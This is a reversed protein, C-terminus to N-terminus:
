EVRKRRGVLVVTLVVMALFIVFFYWYQRAFDVFGFVKADTVTNARIDYYKDVKGDNKTDLGVLNPSGEVAQTRTVIRTEPDYFRDPKGDNSLDVLYQIREDGYAKVETVPWFAQNITDYAKDIKGDHDTDLFYDPANDNNVDPAYKVEYAFVTEPDFWVDAIGDLPRAVPIDLFFNTKGNIKGVAVVSSQSGQTFIEVFREFGNAPDRDFDVALELFEDKDVDVARYNLVNVIGAVTENKSLNVKVGELTGAYFKLTYARPTPLPNTPPKVIARIEGVQGPELRLRDTALTVTWDPIDELVASVNLTDNDNGDNRLRVTWETPLGAIADLRAPLLEVHVGFDHVAAQLNAKATQGATEAILEVPVVTNEAVLFPARVSVNLTVLENPALDVFTLNVARSNQVGVQWAPDGSRVTLQMRGTATGVNKVQVEFNQDGNRDVTKLTKPVSISPIAKGGLINIRVSTGDFNIENGIETVRLISSFATDNVVDAPSKLVYVVPKSEGAALTGEAPSLTQTWNPLSTGTLRFQILQTGTNQLTMTFNAFGGPAVTTTSTPATLKLTGRAAVETTLAITKNVTRALDYPNPAYEISVNLDGTTGPSAGAPPRVSLAITRNKFAQLSFTQTSPEVLWQAANPTAPEVNARLTVTSNSSGTNNVYLLYAGQEDPHAFLRPQDAAVSVNAFQVITTKINLTNQAKDPGFVQVNFTNQEGALGTGNKGDPPQVVIEIERDVFSERRGTFQNSITLNDTYPRQIPDVISTVNRLSVNWGHERDVGTLIVQIDSNDDGGGTSAWSGGHTVRVFYTLNQGPETGGTVINKKAQSIDVLPRDPSYGPLRAVGEVLVANKRAGEVATVIAAGSGSADTTQSKAIVNFSYTDPKSSGGAGGDPECPTQNKDIGRWVYLEATEGPQLAVQNRGVAVGESNRAFIGFEGQFVQDPCDPLFGEAPPLTKIDDVRIDFVDGRKGTNTIWVRFWTGDVGDDACVTSVTCRVQSGSVEVFHGINGITNLVDVRVSSVPKLVFRVLSDVAVGSADLSTANLSVERTIDPQNSTSTVRMDVRVVDGPRVNSLVVRKVALEGALLDESWGPAPPTAIELSLNAVRTGKNWVFIPTRAEEGPIVQLQKSPGIIGVEHRVTNSVTAIVTLPTTKATPDLTSTATIQFIASAGVGAGPPATLTFTVLKSEQPALRITQDTVGAGGIAGSWGVPDSSVLTGDMRFTDNVSGTNNVLLLFTTTGGPPMEHALSELPSPFTSPDNDDYASLSVSQASLFIRALTGFRFAGGQHFPMNVTLNYEGPNLGRYDLNEAAFRWVARGESAQSVAQDYTAPIIGNENPGVPVAQGGRELTFQPLAGYGNADGIGFASQVAFYGVIRPIGEPPVNTKDPYPKFLSQVSGDKNQTWTAARLSDSSRIVLRSGQDSVSWTPQQTLLGDSDTASGQLILRIPDGKPINIVENKEFRIQVDYSNAGNATFSTSGILRNGAEVKINLTIGSQVFGAHIYRLSDNGTLNFSRTTPIEFRAESSVPSGLPTDAPFTCQARGTNSKREQTVLQAPNVSCDPAPASQPVGSPPATPPVIDPFKLYLSTSQAIQTSWQIQPAIPVSDQASANPVLAALGNLTLMAIVTATVLSKWSM